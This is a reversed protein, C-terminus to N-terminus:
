SGVGNCLATMSPLTLGQIESKSGAPVGDAQFEIGVNFLHTTM